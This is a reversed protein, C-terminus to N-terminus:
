SFQVKTIMNLSDGSALNIVAFTMSVFMNGATSADFLAAEDIARAGTATITNSNQITDGTVTTTVVTNANTGSRGETLESSLATDAAAATRAAGTAGVGCALFKPETQTPTTGGIMRGAMIGKGKSTVVTATGFAM